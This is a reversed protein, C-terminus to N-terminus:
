KNILFGPVTYRSAIYKFLYYFLQFLVFYIVACALYIEFPRFSTVILDRGYKLIEAIGVAYALPSDKLVITFENTFGPLSLRVAQPLIIHFLTQTKSMGLSLGAEMHESGISLIAGRYIQAQYASSCLGLGIVVSLFPGLNLGIEPLGFYVIFLMVLQPLGRFVWEYVGVAKRVPAKGYIRLFAVAIGTVMGLAMSLVTILVAIWVGKLLLPLNTIVYALADIM